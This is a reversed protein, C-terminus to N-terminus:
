ERFLQWLLSAGAEALASNIFLDQKGLAEALSCSPTDDTAESQSLLDKFEETIFPLKGVPIFKKSVPQKIDSVTALLVQGTYRSNGFDMWYLPQNVMHNEEHVCSKLIGAIEFRAAVNDVCSITISAQAMSPHQQIYRQTYKHPVAKWGTGFFRNVRNILVVVKKWGIEAEAFPQRGKNAETVVDDDFVWVFLGAHGLTVLSQNIVALRTLVHSGTGGAGILNVTIPNTPNLLYNDAFHMKTKEMKM